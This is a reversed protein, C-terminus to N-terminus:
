HRLLKLELSIKGQPDLNMEERLIDGPASAVRSLMINLSGMKCDKTFSNKDIISINLVDIAMDYVELAASFNFEPDLTSSVYPSKRVQKRLHLVVYPDSVGFTEKNKLGNCRHVTVFLTGSGNANRPSQQETIDFSQATSRTSPPELNESNMSLNDTYSQSVNRPPAQQPPCSAKDERGTSYPLFEAMIILKARVTTRSGSTKSMLCTYESNKAALLAKVPVTCEGILVDYGPVDFYMWFHLTRQKDYLVFSFLDTFKADLGNYINSKRPKGTPDESSMILKVYYPTKARDSAYRPYWGDARLLHIRLTGLAVDALSTHTIHGEVVPFIMRKPYQMMGVLTKRIFSDLFTGVAPVADLAVGGAVVDFDLLWLKMISVSMSGFCPWVSAYPSLVVRMQVSLQLRRVHVYMDPWPISLHLLIDMDSDWSVTVDLISQDDRSPHHQIGTIVFPQSGMSCQKIKIDYIFSPKYNEILPELCARSTKASAQSIPEWMEAILANLWQVNSASPNTVWEPLDKELIKKLFASDKMLRHAHLINFATRKEEKRTVYLLAGTVVTIEILLVLGLSLVIRFILWASVLGLVAYSSIPYECVYNLVGNMTEM